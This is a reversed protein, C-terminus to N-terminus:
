LLSKLGLSLPASPRLLKPDPKAPLWAGSFRPEPWLPPDSGLFKLGLTLPAGPRLSSPARGSRPAPGWSNRLRGGM